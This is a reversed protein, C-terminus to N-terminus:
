LIIRIIIHEIFNQVHESISKVFYIIIGIKNKDVLSCSMVAAWRMSSYYIYRYTM